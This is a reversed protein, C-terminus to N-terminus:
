GKWSECSTQEAAKRHVAVSGNAAAPDTAPYSSIHGVKLNFLAKELGSM